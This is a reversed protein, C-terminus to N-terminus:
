PTYIYVFMQVVFIYFIRLSAVAYLKRSVYHDGQIALDGANILIAGGSGEAGGWSVRPFRPPETIASGRPVVGPFGSGRPM